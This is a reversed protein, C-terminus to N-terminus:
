IAIFSNERRCNTEEFKDRSDMYEYCYIGKQFVLDSGPFHRQTHQFKDVGDKVLSQILSELSANLFQLSDVFRLSGIQFSIYKEATTPIVQIDSPAFNRDIYTMIHSDFGKLNHFSVPLIFNDGNM